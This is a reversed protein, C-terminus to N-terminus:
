KTLWSYDGGCRMCMGDGDLQHGFMDCKIRALLEAKVEDDSMEEIPKDNM